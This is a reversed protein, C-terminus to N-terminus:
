VQTPASLRTHPTLGIADLSADTLRRDMIAIDISGNNFWGAPSLFVARARRVSESEAAWTEKSRHNLRLVFSEARFDVIFSSKRRIKECMRANKWWSIIAHSTSRTLGLNNRTVLSGRMKVDISNEFTLTDRIVPHFADSLYEVLTPMIRASYMCFVRCVILTRFALKIRMRSRAVGARSDNSADNYRNPFPVSARWDAIQLQPFSWWRHWDQENIFSKVAPSCGIMISLQCYDGPLRSTKRETSEETQEISYITSFIFPSRLGGNTM